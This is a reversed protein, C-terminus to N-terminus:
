YNQPFSVSLIWFTPCPTVIQHSLLSVSVIQFTPQSNALFDHPFYNLSNWHWKVSMFCVIKLTKKVDKGCFIIIIHHINVVFLTSLVFVVYQTDDIYHGLSCNLLDWLDCELTTSINLLNMTTLILQPCQELTNTVTLLVCTPITSVFISTVLVIIFIVFLFDSLFMLLWLLMSLISWWIPILFLEHRSLHVWKLHGFKKSQNIQHLYNM